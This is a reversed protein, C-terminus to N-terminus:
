FCSDAFNDRVVTRNDDNEGEGTSVYRDEYEKEPYVSVWMPQQSKKNHIILVANDAKQYARGIKPHNIQTLNIKGKHKRNRETSVELETIKEVRESEIGPVSLALKEDRKDFYAYIHEIGGERGRMLQRVVYVPLHIQGYKGISKFVKKPTDPTM